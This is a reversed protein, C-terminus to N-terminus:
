WRCCFCVLSCSAGVSEFIKCNEPKRQPQESQWVSPTFHFEKTSNHERLLSRTKSSGLATISIVEWNPPPTVALLHFLFPPQVFCLRSIAMYHAAWLVMLTDLGCSHPAHTHTHVHTHPIHLSGLCVVASSRHGHPGITETCGTGRTRM